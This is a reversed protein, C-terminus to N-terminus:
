RLRDMSRVTNEDKNIYRAALISFVLSVIPLYIGFSDSIQDAKSTITGENFILLFAVLPLLISIVTVLYSMKLQLPRNQYLFIAGISILGGLICLVQLIPSDQINYILDNLLNPIPTSSTAFPVGFLSYFSIGSILLFISQLRQIM